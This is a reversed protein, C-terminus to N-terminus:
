THGLHSLFQIFVNSLNHSILYRLGFRGLIL